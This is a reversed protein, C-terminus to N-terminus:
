CNIPIVCVQWVKSMGDLSEVGHLRLTLSGPMVKMLITRGQSEGADRLSM